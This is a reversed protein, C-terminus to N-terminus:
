KNTMKDIMKFFNAKRPNEYLNEGKERSVGMEHRQNERIRIPNYHGVYRRLHKPDDSFDFYKGDGLLLYEVFSNDILTTIDGSETKFSSTDKQKTFFAAAMDQLSKTASVYKDLELKTNEDTKVEGKGQVFAGATQLMKIIAIDPRIVPPLGDIDEFMDAMDFTEDVYTEMRSEVESSTTDGAAKLFGQTMQRVSSAISKRAVDSVYKDLAVGGKKRSAVELMASHVMHVDKQALSHATDVNISSIGLGFDISTSQDSLVAEKQMGQMLRKMFTEPEDVHGDWNSVLRNQRYNDQPKVDNFTDGFASKIWSLVGEENVTLISIATSGKPSNLAKNLVYNYAFQEEDDGGKDGGSDDLPDNLKFSVDKTKMIKKVHNVANRKNDLMKKLMEATMERLLEKRTLTQTEKQKADLRERLAPPALSVMEAVSLGKMQHRVLSKQQAINTIKIRIGLAVFDSESRLGEKGNVETTGWEKLKNQADRRQEEVFKEVKQKAGSLKNSFAKTELLSDILTGELQEKLQDKLQSGATRGAEAYLDGQEGLMDHYVNAETKQRDLYELESAVDGYKEAFEQLRDANAMALNVLM